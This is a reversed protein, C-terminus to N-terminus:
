VVRGKKPPPLFLDKFKYKLFFIYPNEKGGGWFVGPNKFFAGGGGGGRLKIGSSVIQWVNSM